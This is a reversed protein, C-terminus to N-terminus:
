ACTFFFVLLLVGVVLLLRRVQDAAGVHGTTLPDCDSYHNFVLVGMMMCLSIIIVLGTWSIYLASFILLVILFAENFRTM